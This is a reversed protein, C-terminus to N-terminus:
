FPSMKLTDKKFKKLLEKYEAKETCNVINGYKDHKFNCCDHMKQDILKRARVVRQKICSVSLNLQGSIVKHPLGHIDSLLLINRYKLPLSYIIPTLKKSEDKTKHESENSVCAEFVSSDSTVEKKQKERYYDTISYRTVGMLWQLVKTPDKIEHTKEWFKIFVEQLIDDSEVRNKVRRHIYSIVKDKNNKWLFLLENETM